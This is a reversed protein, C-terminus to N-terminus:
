EEYEDTEDTKIIRYRNGKPSTFPVESVISDPAPLGARLPLRSRRVETACSGSSDKKKKAPSKVPSSKKKSSM